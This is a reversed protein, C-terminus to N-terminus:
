EHDPWDPMTWTRGHVRDWLRWRAGGTAWERFNMARPEPAQPRLNLHNWTIESVTGVERWRARIEDLMAPSIHHREAMMRHREAESLPVVEYHMHDVPQPMYARLQAAQIPSLVPEPQSWTAETRAVQHRQAEAINEAHLRKQESQIARLEVDDLVLSGGFTVTTRPLENVGRHWEISSGEPHVLLRRMLDALVQDIHSPM